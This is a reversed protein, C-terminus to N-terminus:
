TVSINSFILLTVQYTLRKQELKGVFYIFSDAPSKSQRNDQIPSFSTRESHPLLMPQHRKLIPHQPLYQTRLPVLHSPLPSFYMILFKMIKVVWWFNNQHDFRFSVCKRAHLV